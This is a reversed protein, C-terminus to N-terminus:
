AYGHAAAHQRVVRAQGQLTTLDVLDDTDVIREGTIRHVGQASDICYGNYALPIGDDRGQFVIEGFGTLFSADHDGDAADFTPGYTFRLAPWDFAVTRTTFNGQFVGDPSFNSGYYSLSGGKAEVRIIGVLRPQAERTVYDFWAGEVYQRGLFLRRVHRSREVTEEVALRAIGATVLIVLVQIALTVATPTDAILDKAAEAVAVGAAVGVASGANVLRQLRTM